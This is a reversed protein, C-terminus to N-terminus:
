DAVELIRSAALLEVGFASDTLIDIFDEDDFGSEPVVPYKGTVLEPHEDIGGKWRYIDELLDTSGDDLPVGCLLGPGGRFRIQVEAVARYRTEMAGDELVEQAPLLRAHSRMPLGVAVVRAPADLEIRGNTVIRSYQSGDALVLVEQGEFIDLGGSLETVPNDFRAEIRCDLHAVDKLEDGGDPNFYSGLREILRYTNSGIARNVILWLDDAGGDDSPKVAIDEVTGGLDHQHWALMEQDRNYTLGLLSGDDCMAWIVRMPDRQFVIKKIGRGALHGSQISVNESRYQDTGFDYYLRQMRRGDTTIHLIDTNIRVPSVYRSGENTASDIKLNTPTIAENLNSASMAFEEGTTGIALVKGSALWQVANSRQSGSGVREAFGDAAEEGTEFNGSLFESIKSGGVFTDNALLLRQQYFTASSAWGRFDSFSEGWDDTAATTPINIETTANAVTKAGNLSTIRAAGSIVRFLSGVHGDDFTFGTATLTINGSGGSAQIKKDEDINSYFFPGGKTRYTEIQWDLTGFRSLKRGEYKVHFSLIVDGSHVHRLGDLDEVKWPTAVEYVDGAEDLVLGDQRFFRVTQDGFELISSDTQSLEFAELRSGPLAIGIQISGPRRTLGGEPLTIFNLCKALGTDYREFDFRGYLRPSIEGSAFSPKSSTLRQAM